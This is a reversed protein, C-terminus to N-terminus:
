ANANSIFADSSAKFFICNDKKYAHIYTTSQCGSVLNDEIQFEKPMKDKNSKGMDILLRYKEEKTQKRNFLCSIEEIKNKLSKTM